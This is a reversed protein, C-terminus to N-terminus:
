RPHSAIADGSFEDPFDDNLIKGIGGLLTAAEALPFALFGAYLDPV